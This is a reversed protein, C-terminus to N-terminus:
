DSDVCTAGGGELGISVAYQRTSTGLTITGNAGCSGGQDYFFQNLGPPNVAGSSAYVSGSSPSVLNNTTFNIAATVAAADAPYVGSNNSGAQEILAGLRAADARRQTDRRSRQLTPVALFVILFILGAIALVLVVEIITFGTLSKHL